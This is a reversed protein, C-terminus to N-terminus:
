LGIAPPFIYMPKGSSQIGLISLLTMKKELFSYLRTEGSFVSELRNSLLEFYNPKPTFLRPKKGLGSLEGIHEIANSYTGIVDAFGASVAADGTFVRGDTYSALDEPSIKRGEIIASKFQELLENLLDQFLIREKSTLRRFITGSDKFEGTKISYPEMKAWEYLREMNMLPWIVGISGVLTSSNVIISSAGAAAYLAGSAMTSGVSIVIPKQLVEKVRKFEQYLEESVAVSGGPSDLRILVGKIKEENSYKRLEKIFKQKELLVGKLELALISDQTTRSINNKPKLFSVVGSFFLLVALVVFIKVFISTKNKKM